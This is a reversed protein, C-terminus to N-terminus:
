CGNDVIIAGKISFQSQRHVFYAECDEKTPERGLWSQSELTINNGMGATKSKLIPMMYLRSKFTYTVGQMWNQLRANESGLTAMKPGDGIKVGPVDSNGTEVAKAFSNFANGNESLLFDKMYSQASKKQQDKQDYGALYARASLFTAYQLYNQVGFSVSVQVYMFAVTFFAFLALIFEIFSQGSQKKKKDNKIM